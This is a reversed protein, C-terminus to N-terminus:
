TGRMTRWKCRMISATFISATLTTCRTTTALPPTRPVCVSANGCRFITVIWSEACTTRTRLCSPTPIHSCVDRVHVCACVCRNAEDAEAQTAELPKNFWSAVVMGPQMVNEAARGQAVWKNMRSRMMDLSDFTLQWLARAHSDGLRKALSFLDLSYGPHAFGGNRGSAAWALRNKELLVVRQGRSAASLAVNIGALGGGVIAIDFETSSPVSGVFAPVSADSTRSYYSDVHRTVGDLMTDAGVHLCAAPAPVGLAARAHPLVFFATRPAHLSLMTRGAARSRARSTTTAACRASMSLVM